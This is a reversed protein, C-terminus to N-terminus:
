ESCIKEYCMLRFRFRPRFRFNYGKKHIGFPWFSYPHSLLIERVCEKFFFFANHPSIHWPFEVPSWVEWFKGLWLSLGLYLFSQRKQPSYECVSFEDSKVDDVSCTFTLKGSSCNIHVTSSSNFVMSVPCQVESNNLVRWMQSSTNGSGTVQWKVKSRPYGGHSNCTVMCSQSHSDDNCIM